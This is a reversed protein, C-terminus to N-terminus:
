PVVAARPGVKRETLLQWGLNPGSLTESAHIALGHIRGGASGSAVEPWTNYLVPVLSAVRLGM